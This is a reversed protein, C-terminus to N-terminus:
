IDSVDRTTTRQWHTNRQQVTFDHELHDHARIQKNYLIFTKKYIIRCYGDYSQPEPILGCVKNKIALWEAKQALASM